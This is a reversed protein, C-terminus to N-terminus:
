NRMLGQKTRTEQQTIQDGSPVNLSSSTGQESAQPERIQVAGDTEQRSPVVVDEQETIQALSEVNTESDERQSSPGECYPELGNACQEAYTREAMECSHEDFGNSRECALNFYPAATRHNKEVSLFRGEYYMVAVEHCAVYDGSRCNGRQEDLEHSDKYYTHLGTGTALLAIASVIATGLRFLKSSKPKKTKTTSKEGFPDGVVPPRPERGLLTDVIKGGIWFFDDGCSNKRTKNPQKVPEELPPEEPGQTTNPASSFGNNKPEQVPEYAKNPNFDDFANDPLEPPQISTAEFNNNYPQKPSRTQNAAKNRKKTAIRNRKALSEHEYARQVAMRIDGLSSYRESNNLSCAKRAIETLKAKFPDDECTKLLTKMLKGVSQIDSSESKQQVNSYSGYNSGAGFGYLKTDLHRTLLIKEPSINGHLTVGKNQAFTVSRCVSGVIKQITGSNFEYGEDIRQALSYEIPEVIAYPVIQTINLSNEVSIQGTSHIKLIGNNGALKKQKELSKTFDTQSQNECTTSSQYILVTLNKDGQEANYIAISGNQEAGEVIQDLVKVPGKESYLEKGKIM